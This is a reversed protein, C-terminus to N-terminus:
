VSWSRDLYPPQGAITHQGADTVVPASEGVGAGSLPRHPFGAAVLALPLVKMATPRFTLFQRRPQTTALDM